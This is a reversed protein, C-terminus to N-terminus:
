DNKTYKDVWSMYSQQLEETWDLTEYIVSPKDISIKAGNIINYIEKESLMKNRDRLEMMYNGNRFLIWARNENKGSAIYASGEETEYKNIRDAQSLFNTFDSQLHFYAITIFDTDGKPGYYLSTDGGKCRYGKPLHNLVLYYKKSSIKDEKKITVGQGYETKTEEARFSHFWQRIKENSAGYVTASIGLACLTISAAVAIKKTFKTKRVNGCENAAERIFEDDIGDIIKQITKKNM